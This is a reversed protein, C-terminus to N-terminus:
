GRLSQRLLYILTWQRARPCNTMCAKKIICAFFERSSSFTWTGLAWKKGAWPCWQNQPHLAMVSMQWKKQTGHAYIDCSPSCMRTWDLCGPERPDWANSTFAQSLTLADFHVFMRIKIFAKKNSLKHHSDAREHLTPILALTLPNLLGGGSRRFWSPVSFTYRWRMLHGILHDM